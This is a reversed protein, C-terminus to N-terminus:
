TSGKDNSAEAAWNQLADNFSRVSAPVPRDALLINSPQTGPGYLASNARNDASLKGGQLNLGAYLGGTSQSYVYVPAQRSAGVRRDWGSPGATASLTGNLAFQGDIVARVAEQSEFLMIVNARQAGAQLGLSAASLDYAAPPAKAFDGSRDRCSVFGDGHTGGVVLGAKTVAPLVAVCRANRILDRPIRQNNPREQQAALVQAADAARDRQQNLLKTKQQPSMDGSSACVALVLTAAAAAATLTSRSTIGM